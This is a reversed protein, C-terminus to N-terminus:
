MNVFQYGALEYPKLDFETENLLIGHEVFAKLNALWFTWGNSCGYFIELKSKDDQPINSQKLSVLVAQDHKELRVSVECSGAFSFNIFDSGNAELITGEEKGDWNHWFWTYQDGSKFNEQDSIELGNRTYVADSLFWQIIGSKTSWLRYIESIDAKIFIKKEFADWTLQKM